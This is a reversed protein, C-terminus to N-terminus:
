AGEGDDSGPERAPTEVVPAADGVVEADVVDGGVLAELLRHHAKVDVLNGALAKVWRAGPKAEALKAEAFAIAAGAEALSLGSIPRGKWEGFEVLPGPSPAPPAEPSPQGAGLVQEARSPPQENDPMEESAYVGGFAVPYAQRLAAVRGCKEHMRAFSNNWFQGNGSRDAADLWVVVASGDKKVVRAWSGIFRGRPKTPVFVHEVKGNGTDVKVVPDNEYVAASDVKVFDPFRAARAQMGEASAQFVHNTIWKPNDKTGVNTRRPVCFAEGALPNLGRAKCQAAFVVFEPDTIGKPCSQQKVVEWVEAPWEGVALGVQEIRQIATSM